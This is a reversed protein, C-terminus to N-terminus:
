ISPYLDGAWLEQLCCCLYVINGHVFLCVFLCIGLDDLQRLFAEDMMVPIGPQVLTRLHSSNEESLVREIAHIASDSNPLFEPPKKQLLINAMDNCSAISSAAIALQQQQSQLRELRIGYEQEVSNM